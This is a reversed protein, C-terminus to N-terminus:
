RDPPAFHFFSGQNKGKKGSKGIKRSKGGRKDWNEGEKEQTKVFRKSDLPSKGRSVGGGLTLNTMTSFFSFFSITSAKESDQLQLSTAELTAAVEEYLMTLTSDKSTVHGGM